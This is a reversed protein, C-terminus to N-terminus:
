EKSTRQTNEQYQSLLCSQEYSLRTNRQKMLYFKQSTPIKKYTQQRQKQLKINTQEKQKNKRRSKLILQQYIKNKEIMQNFQSLVITYNNHVLYYKYSSMLDFKIDFNYNEVNEQDNFASIITKQISSSHHKKQMEENIQKKLDDLTTQKSFQYGKNNKNHQQKSAKLTLNISKKRQTIQSQKQVQTTQTNNQIEQNIEEITNLQRMQQNQPISPLKITNIQIKTSQEQINEESKEKQFNDQNQNVLQYEQIEEVSHYDDGMNEILKLNGEEIEDIGQNDNLVHSSRMSLDKGTQQRELFESDFRKRLETDDTQELARIEILQRNILAQYSKTRRFWEQRTIQKRKNQEVANNKYNQNLSIMQCNQFIHDTQGCSECTVGQIKNLENNLLITDKIQCYSEYDHQHEAALKIFDEYRIIAFQTNRSTKASFQYPQQSFFESLGLVEGESMTMLSHRNQLVLQVQGKIIVYLKDSKQGEEFIKEDIQFQKEEVITYMNQILRESFNQSFFSINKFLFSYIDKQVDERLETTLSDILKSGFENNESSEQNQNEYYKRVRVQLNSSLNRKKMYLNLMEMKQKFEEGKLSFQKVIEGISGMTFAFLFCSLICFILAFIRERYTTPTIDGYGITTMTVICYYMGAIYGQLKLNVNPDLEYSQIDKKLWTNQVDIDEEHVALAYWCCCALHACLFIFSSLKLLEFINGYRERLSNAQELDETLRILTILRFLGVCKVWLSVDPNLSILWCINLTLDFIFRSKFYNVCIEWRDLIIQGHRYFGTNFELFMNIIQIINPIVEFVTFYGKQEHLSDFALRIPLYVIYILLFIFQIINWITNVYSSPLMIAGSKQDLTAISRVFWTEIKKIIIQLRTPQNNKFIRKYFYVDYDFAYDDIIQLFRKKTETFRHYSSYQKIKNAFRNIYLFRKNHLQSFLNFSTSRQQLCQEEQEKRLNFKQLDMDDPKQNSEESLIQKQQSDDRDCIKVLGVEEKLNQVETYDSPAIQAKSKTGIM